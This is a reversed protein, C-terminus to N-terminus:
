GGSTEGGNMTLIALLIGPLVTAKLFRASGDAFLVNAGGSHPSALRPLPGGPAWRLDDPKTWPVPTDTEMVLITNSTGDTIERLDVGRTPEFPTNVSTSEAEPGVVVLYGTRGSRRGPGGPCAFEPPMEALLARNHPSDWPEDLHFREYLSRYGLHPLLAVRWSLLPTGDRRTIAPAPFHGHAEEYKHMALGLLKLHDRCWERRSVRDAAVVGIAVLFVLLGAAGAAGVWFAIRGCSWARRRPASEELIILIDEDNPTITNM